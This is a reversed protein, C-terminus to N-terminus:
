MRAVLQHKFKWVIWYSFLTRLIAVTLMALAAGMVGMNKLFVYLLGIEVFVMAITMALHYYLANQELRGVIISSSLNYYLRVAGAALLIRLVTVGDDYKGKYLLHLIPRALIMTVILLAAAAVGIVISLRKVQVKKSGGFEPVWVYKGARGIINFMQSPAAAAQYLALSALDLMKPIFLSDLSALLTVSTQSGLLLLGNTYFDRPVHQDGQPIRAFTYVANIVAIIIIILFYSFIALAASTTKAFFMVLVFLFFAGRFGNVMLIAPTYNQRGRWLNSFFLTSVYALSAAFLGVCKWLSLHYIIAAVVVGIAVLATGIKLILSLVRSWRYKEPANRSFFRATAVDQGWIAIPPIFLVLTRMLSFEGFAVPTLTRALFITSLSALVMVASLALSVGGINVAMKKFM